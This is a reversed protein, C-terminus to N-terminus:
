RRLAGGGIGLRAEIADKRRRSLPVEAGGKLLLTGNGGSASRVEVVRALNVIASRHVRAFGEKRLRTELAYMRESLLYSRDGVHVSAYDGAAEIWDVQPLPVLRTRNGQSVALRREATEQPRSADAGTRGTRPPRIRTALALLLFYILANVHLYQVSGTVVTEGFGAADPLLGTVWWAAAILVNVALAAVGIGSLHVLTPVVLAGRRPPLRRALWVVGAGVPVWSTAALLDRLFHDALGQGLDAGGVAIRILVQLFAAALVTGAVIAAIRSGSWVSSDPSREDMDRSRQGSSSSREDIARQDPSGSGGRM